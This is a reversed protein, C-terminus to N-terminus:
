QSPTQRGRTVMAPLAFLFMGLANAFAITRQAESETPLPADEDAHRQDNADLRVEHGWDAMEATIKHADKAENIRANLSGTKYGIAKLMADVSSAALMQAGAPAHLSDTAQKLFMRAKEPIAADPEESYPWYRQVTGDSNTMAVTM